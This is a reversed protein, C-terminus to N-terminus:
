RAPSWSIGGWHVHFEGKTLQFLGTGDVNIIWIHDFGDRESVFAIKKGDPSWTPSYGHMPPDTLRRIKRTAIEMIFIEDYGDRGDSAFAIFKGGSSIAPSRDPFTDNTLIQFDTGDRNVIALEYCKCKEKALIKGKIRRGEAITLAFKEEEGDISFGHIGGRKEPLSIRLEETTFLETLAGIGTDVAYLIDCYTDLLYLNISSKIRTTWDIEILREEKGTTLNKKYLYWKEKYSGPRGICRMFVLSKGNDIWVPQEEWNTNYTLRIPEAGPETKIIYVEKSSGHTNDGSQHSYAVFAIANTIQAETLKVEETYCGTISLLLLVIMWYSKNKNIM